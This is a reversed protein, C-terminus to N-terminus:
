YPTGRRLKSAMGSKDPKQGKQPSYDTQTHAATRKSGETLLEVACSAQWARRTARNAKKHVTTRKRTQARGNQVEPLRDGQLVQKPLWGQRSTLGETFPIVARHLHARKKKKLGALPRSQNRSRRRAAVHTVEDRLPTMHVPHEQRRTTCVLTEYQCGKPRVQANEDAVEGHKLVRCMAKEHRLM